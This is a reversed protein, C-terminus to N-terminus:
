HRGLSRYGVADMKRALFYKLKIRHGRPTSVRVPLDSPVMGLALSSKIMIPVHETTPWAGNTTVGSMQGVRTITVRLGANVANVLVRESVYKSQGYGQDLPISPDDIPVEPVLMQGDREGISPEQTPGPYMAAAAISSLFTFRPPQAHPSSLALDILHRVGAVHVREYSELILNFNLHWAVHIIHTV